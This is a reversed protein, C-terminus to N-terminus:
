LFNVFQFSPYSVNLKGFIGKITLFFFFVVLKGVRKWEKKGERKWWEGQRKRECILQHSM